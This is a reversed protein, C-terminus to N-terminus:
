FRTNMSANMFAQRMMEQMSAAMGDAGQKIFAVVMSAVVERVARMVLEEFHDKTYQRVAAPLGSDEDKLLANVIADFEQSAQTKVIMGSQRFLQELSKVPDAEVAAAIKAKMGEDLMWGVQQKAAERAIHNIGDETWYERVVGCMLERLRAEQEDTFVPAKPLDAIESITTM